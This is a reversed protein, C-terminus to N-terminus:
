GMRLVVRNIQLKVLPSENECDIILTIEAFTLPRQRRSSMGIKQVYIVQVLRTQSNIKFYTLAARDGHLSYDIRGNIGEDIDRANVPLVVTDVVAGDSVSFYLYLDTLLYIGCTLPKKSM